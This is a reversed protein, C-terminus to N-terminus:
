LQTITLGNGKYKQLWSNMSQELITHTKLHFLKGDMFFIFKM